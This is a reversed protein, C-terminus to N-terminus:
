YKFDSMVVKTTGTASASSGAVKDIQVEIDFTVVLSKINGTASDITATVIANSYKEDVIAGEFTGGIADYINQATKHDYYDKDDLGACIGSKDIPAATNYNDKDAHSTGGKVKLTIVFNGGDAKCEASTVDNATLTSKAIFKTEEGKAVTKSYKNDSGIGMFKYILSKFTKLVLGADFKENYTERNKTFAPKVSKARETASTYFKLIEDTTEPLPLPETTTEAATTTEGDPLTTGALTTGALTTEALTSADADVAAVTTDSVPTLTTNEEVTTEPLTTSALTTTGDEGGCAAFSLLLAVVLLISTFATLKNKM